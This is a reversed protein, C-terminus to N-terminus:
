LDRLPTCSNKSKMNAVKGSEFWVSRHIRSVILIELMMPLTNPLLIEAEFVKLLPERKAKIDAEIEEEFKREIM